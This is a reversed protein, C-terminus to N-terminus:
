LYVLPSETLKIYIFLHPQLGPRLKSKEAVIHLDVNVNLWHLFYFWSHASIIWPNTTFSFIIFHKSYVFLHFMDSKM